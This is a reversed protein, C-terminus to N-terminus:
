KLLGALDRIGQLIDAELATIEHLIEHAARESAEGARAAGAHELDLRYAPAQFQERRVFFTAVDGPSGRQVRERESWRVLLEAVDRARDLECFWVRGTEGGKQAVVVAARTRAKYVGARLRIVALLANQEILRRRMAQHAQTTADLFSEPVILALRGGPELALLAWAVAILDARRSRALAGAESASRGAQVSGAFPVAGIVAPCPEGPQPAAADIGGVDVSRGGGAPALTELLRHLQPSLASAANPPEIPM